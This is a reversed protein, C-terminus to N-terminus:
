LGDKTVRPPQLQKVPPGYSPPDPRTHGESARLRSTGLRANILGWAISVNQNMPIMLGASRRAM